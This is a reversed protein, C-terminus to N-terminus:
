PAGPVDIVVLCSRLTPEVNGAADVSYFWLTHVGDNAGSSLAPIVVADGVMWPGGDVCFCTFGPGSLPDDATLHVTVDGAHPLGDSDHHTTPPRGDVLVVLPAPEGANGLGDIGRVWTTREGSGYGRRGTSVVFSTGTQWPGSETPAYELHHIVACGADVASLNVTVPGRVWTSPQDGSVVPGTTDIKVQVSTTPGVHGAFDVARVVVDHVGDNGHGAPAAITAGDGHQWAGGDVSYEFEEVGSLDDSAEFSLEVPAAHWAADAGDVDPASPPLTDGEKGLVADIETVVQGEAVTVEDAAEPASRNDWFEGAFGSGEHPTGFVVLYTGPSLPALTYRGDPGTEAATFEWHWGAEDSGTAVTVGVAAVPHGSADTVTGSVSAGIPLSLDVTTTKDADVGIAEASAVAYITRPGASVRYLGPTVRRIQWRGEGDTVARSGDDDLDVYRDVGEDWIALRVPAGAAVGGGTEYVTGELAGATQLQADIDHVEQRPDLLISSGGLVSSADDWFERSLGLDRGDFEVRYTGGAMEGLLYYGDDWSQFSYGPEWQGDVLTWKRVTVGAVPQGDPGTVTGFIMASRTMYIDGLDSEAGATITVPTSHELDPADDYWEPVYAGVWCNFDVRYDGPALNVGHMYGNTDEGTAYGAYRQWSGGDPGADPVWAWVGIEMPFAFSLPTYPPQDELLRGALSGGPDLVPDVTRTEGPTLDLDTGTGVVLAGDFVEAAWPDPNDNNELRLQYTRAPLGAFRYYGDGDTVMRQEGDLWYQAWEASDPERYFLIAEIGPLAHAAGDTVHGEIVCAEELAADVQTTGGEAVDVDKGSWADPANEYWEAAYAANPDRFMVRYSGAALGGVDYHGDADTQGGAFHDWDGWDARWRAVTVELNEIGAGGDAATVTGAIHGAASLEVAGLNRSKGSRVGVPAADGWDQADDFLEGVFRGEDDQFQVITPRAQLGSKSFDGQEDTWAEAYWEWHGEDTAPDLDPDPEPDDVWGNFMVMVNGIGDGAGDVVQGYIRGGRELVPDPDLWTTAGAEVVINIGEGANLADEYVEETYVENQDHLELSYTGAPLGDITFHGDEGSQGGGLWDWQNDLGEGLFLAASVDIGQLPNAGPDRVYGAIHGAPALSADATTTFGATVPVDDPGTWGPVDDYYERAWDGDPDLFQVRYTGAELGGVTYLGDEDTFWWGGPVQDWDGGNWRYVDVAIGQLGGGGDATVHGSIAGASALVANCDVKDNANVPVFDAEWDNAKNEWWETVWSSSGHFWLRYEGPTLPGLTYLGVPSTTTERVGPWGGAPPDNMFATVTIGGIPAGGVAQVVGGILAGVELDAHIWGATMGSSIRVSHASQMTRQHDFFQDGYVGGAEDRFHFRYEGPALGGVSWDGGADSMGMAYGQWSQSWDDWRFVDVRIDELAAGGDAAAVHGGAHGARVLVANAWTFVGDEELPIADANEMGGPRDNWWESVYDGLPDNFWVKYLGSGLTPVTYTGSTDTTAMGSPGYTAGGDDSRLVHIEIGPLPQAMEGVIVGSISGAALAPAVFVAGAAVLLILLVGLRVGRRLPSYSSSTASTRRLPHM